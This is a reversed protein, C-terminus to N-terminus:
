LEQVIKDKGLSYWNNVYTKRKDRKMKKIKQKYYFSDNSFSTSSIEEFICGENGATFRHWSNKKLHVVDGPKLVYQSKNDFLKLDGHLIIFSESKKKHFHLPHKQNSLMVILKKAYEKNIINFLYCGVKEFNEIGNHHSIEMDFIESMNIKAYNLLAKAKHVYSGIKYDNILKKDLLVNAIKLPQNKNVSIKSIIDGKLETSALQGKIIPFAFYVNKNLILKENKKLDKKAYVGRQLSNITQIEKKSIIKNKSNGLIKQNELINLYWENFLKPTISYDNLKFKKSPIGIHKELIKAGSAVALVSPRFDEPNEHTSWGIPVDRYRENLDKIINIQLKSNETPYLSVCHMIAFQQKMKKYFSVIKDVDEIKVGGTSIIKPIKNKIVREHLNFDLASVSAIKIIDFKFKEIKEVSQEDFPTCSVLINKKKIKKILIEFNKDSLKTDLFRRVFKEESNIFDKHIFTELNRFQFKFAAKIKLKKIINGFQDIIKKAHTLNGFHNNAIDLVYLDDFINKNKM